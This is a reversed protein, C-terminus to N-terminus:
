NIVTFRQFMSSKHPKCFANYKGPVLKVTFTKTGVFPETTFRWLKGNPGSLRYDHITSDDHIVVTYTNAKLTKVRNGNFKLSITFADNKGVVGVLKPHMVAGASGTLLLATVVAALATLRIM